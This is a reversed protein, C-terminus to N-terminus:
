GQKENNKNNREELTDLITKKTKFTEHDHKLLIQRELQFMPTSIRFEGWCEGCIRKAEIIKAM